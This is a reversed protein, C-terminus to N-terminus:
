GRRILLVVGGRDDIFNPAVDFGPAIQGVGILPQHRWLSSPQQLVPPVVLKLADTREEALDFRHFGRNPQRFNCGLHSRANGLEPGVDFPRIFLRVGFQQTQCQFKRSARALGGNHRHQDGPLGDVSHTM